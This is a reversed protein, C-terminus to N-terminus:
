GGVRKNEAESLMEGHHRRAGDDPTTGAPSVDVREHGEQVLPPPLAVQAIPDVVTLLWM